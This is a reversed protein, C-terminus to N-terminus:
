LGFTLSGTYISWGMGDASTVWNGVDQKYYFMQEVLRESGCSEIGDGQLEIVLAINSALFVVYM